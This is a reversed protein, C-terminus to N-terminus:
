LSKFAWVTPQAIRVLRERRKCRAARALVSGCSTTGVSVQVGACTPHAIRVLGERRKCRAARSSRWLFNDRCLSSRGCMYPACHAGAKREAQVTRSARPCLWLFNDRCLSSCGCMYPACHGAAKREARATCGMLVVVPSLGRCSNPLHLFAVVLREQDGM